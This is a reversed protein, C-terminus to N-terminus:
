PLCVLVCWNVLSIPNPDPAGTGNTLVGRRRFKPVVLVNNSSIGIRFYAVRFLALKNSLIDDILVFGPTCCTSDRIVDASTADIQRVNPMRQM